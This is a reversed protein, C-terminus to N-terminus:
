EKKKYQNIDRPNQPANTIYMAVGTVADIASWSFNSRNPPISESGRGSGPLPSELGRSIIIWSQPSQGHALTTHDVYIGTIVKAQTAPKGPCADLAQAFNVPPVEKPLGNFTIKISNLYRDAAKATPAPLTDSSGFEDSISFINLLQGTIPDLLVFYDRDMVQQDKGVRIGEFKIEWVEHGNIQEAVFPTNDDSITVLQAQTIASKASSESVSFGTYEIAKEYASLKSMLAFKKDLTDGSPDTARIVNAMFPMFVLLIGILMHKKM